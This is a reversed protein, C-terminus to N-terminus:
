RDNRGQELKAAALIMMEGFKRLHAPIVERHELIHESYGFYGDKVRLIVCGPEGNEYMQQVVEMTLGGNDVHQHHKAIVEEIMRESM